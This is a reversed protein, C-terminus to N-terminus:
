NNNEEKSTKMDLTAENIADDVTKIGDLIMSYGIAAGFGHSLEKFEKNLKRSYSIVQKETYGVMYVLFENGNTRIIDSNVVQNQILINAAEAIVNDGEKHGYNDNVYAINNLDIILIAQPYVDSEDWSVINDNLYNRNKLSTLQDIYKIKDEKKLNNNNKDKEKTFISIFKRALYYVGVISMAYLFINLIAAFSDKKLILEKMSNNMYSNSNQFTIFFDLFEAFVKNEKIDRVLYGYSETTNDSYLVSYDKLDSHVLYSYADSDIAIIYDKKGDMLRNINDFSVVEAGKDKVIKEIKTNKIVAVRQGKLANLSTISVEKTMPAIVSIKTVINGATSYTDMDFKKTSINNFIFDLKNENFAKVLDAYKSYETYKIEVDSLKSFAQMYEKNFGNLKTAYTYDFPSNTVFGYNYRKSRFATKDKESIKKFEFYNNSLHSLYSEELNESKWKKFYKKLINNLNKNEGLTIVYDLTLDNMNYNISLKSNTIEKLYITKPIAIAGVEPLESTLSLFLSDINEYTKYTFKPNNDLSESVKTAESSLTGILLNPLKDITEFYRSDKSVIVYNDKYISLDKSGATEKISFSYETNIKEGKKYLIKNFELKTSEELNEIFDLIVGNGEYNYVPLNGIIGFDILSNKGTEIWNKEKLTLTSEEDEKFFFFYVFGSIALLIIISIIILIKKNKMKGGKDLGFL